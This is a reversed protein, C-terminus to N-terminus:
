RKTLVRTPKLAEPDERGKRAVVVYAVALVFVIASTFSNIRIGAIETAPDSRMLEV